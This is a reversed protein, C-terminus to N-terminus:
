YVNENDFGMITSDIPASAAFGAEVEFEIVEIIPSEYNIIKKM